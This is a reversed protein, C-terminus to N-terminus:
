WCAAAYALSRMWDRESEPGLWFELIASAQEATVATNAM